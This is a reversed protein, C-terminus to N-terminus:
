SIDATVHLHFPLIFSVIIAFNYSPPVYETCLFSTSVTPVPIPSLLVVSRMSAQVRSCAGGDLFLALQWPVAVEM